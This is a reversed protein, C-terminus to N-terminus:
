SVWSATLMQRDIQTHTKQCGQDAMYSSWYWLIFSLFQSHSKRSLDCYDVPSVFGVNVSLMLQLLREAAKSFSQLPKDKLYFMKEPDNQGEGRGGVRPWGQM